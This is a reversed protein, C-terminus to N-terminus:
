DHSAERRRVARDACANMLGMFEGYTMDDPLPTALARWDRSPDTARLRRLYTKAMPDRYGAKAGQPRHMTLAVRLCGINRAQEDTLGAISRSLDARRWVTAGEKVTELVRIERIAAPPTDLPNRDLVVFDALLGPAIRGRRTEEFTQWAPGTTLAQLARYASERQAPGSVVGTRSTRAMATWLQLRTDLSTVPYDSHNSPTVGAARASAFPSIFDVVEAPFNSRHVDAWYFTHNSFFAPGVGIRAYAPLHDPRMFQSHIVVPRRDDAARISLADFGRIAMDIAADGNAHVFIQWGRRHAEGALAQFQADTVLPKGRWPRSGDPAGRSYDRTFFATRAQPSGDLIFKVGQLKVRGIWAHPRYAPNSFLPDLGALSLPLVALDLKLRGKAANSTLLALDSPQTAGDQAFTFGERLYLTQAEDIAALRDQDTKQPMAATLPAMATEFLGGTLRGQADTTMVGGEPPAQGDALGAAALAQSNAVLGHGSVHMLVVKHRPLAADLEARTIYRKEALGEQDYRTAIVWGGDPIKAAFRRLAAVLSANDSLPGTAADALNLRGAEQLASAFHSHADVFGPLLTRGALDRDNAGAGAVRRAESLLGTFAIRGDRVVVAEVVGPQDGNMTVIPGGRWITTSAGLAPPAAVLLLGVAAVIAEHM